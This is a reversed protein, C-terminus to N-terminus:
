WGGSSTIFLKLYLEVESIPRDFPKLMALDAFPM